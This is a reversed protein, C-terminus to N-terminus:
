GSVFHNADAYSLGILGIHWQCVWGVDLHPAKAVAATDSGAEVPTAAAAADETHAATEEQRHLLHVRWEKMWTTQRPSLPPNLRLKLRLNLRLKLRLNLRLKLRLHQCQTRSYSAFGRRTRTGRAQFWFLPASPILLTQLAKYPKPNRATQNNHRRKLRM